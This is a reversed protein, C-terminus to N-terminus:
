DKLYNSDIDYGESKVQAVEGVYSRVREIGAIRAEIGNDGLGLNVTYKLEPTILIIRSGKFALTALELDRESFVRPKVSEIPFEATQPLEEDPETVTPELAMKDKKETFKICIIKEQEKM